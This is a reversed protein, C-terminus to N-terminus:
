SPDGTVSSGNSQNGKAGIHQRESALDVDRSNKFVVNGVDLNIALM